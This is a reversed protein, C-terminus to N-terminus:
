IIELNGIIDLIIYFKHLFNSPDPFHFNQKESSEPAKEKLIKWGCNASDM